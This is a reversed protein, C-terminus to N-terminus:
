WDRPSKGGPGGFTCVSMRVFPRLRVGALAGGPVRPCLVPQRSRGQPGGPRRLCLHRSGGVQHGVRGCCLHEPCATEGGEGWRGQGRCWPLPRDQGGFPHLLHWTSLPPGPVLQLRFPPGVWLSASGELTLGASALPPFGPPHPSARGAEGPRGVITARPEPSALLELM